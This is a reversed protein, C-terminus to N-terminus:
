NPNPFNGEKVLRAFNFSNPVIPHNEIPTGQIREAATPDIPCCKRIIKWDPSPCESPNKEIVCKAFQLYEACANPTYKPNIAETYSHTLNHVIASIKM